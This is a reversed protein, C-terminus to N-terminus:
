PTTLGIAASIFGGIPPVDYVVTGTAGDNVSEPPAIMYENDLFSVFAGASLEAVLPGVVRLSTHGAVGTALWLSATKPRQTIADPLEVFEGQYIGAEFYVAPRIAIHDPTQLILISGELRGTTWKVRTELVDTEVRRSIEKPPPGISGVSLRVAPALWELRQLGAELFLRHTLTLGPALATM